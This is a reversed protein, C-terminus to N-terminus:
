KEFIAAATTVTANASSATSSGVSSSTSSPLAVFPETHTANALGPSSYNSSFRLDGDALDLGLLVRRFMELSAEPQYFPVEHGAQRVTLLFLLFPTLTSVEYVRLFSFNGYQRVEGYETGDVIFPAYGAAAFEEKHAYNVELSVAEGGFRNDCNALAFRASSFEYWNCIYDADGYYLAVRVSNNLLMELDELFNPFIFDGTQQFAYYVEDNADTYNLDVGLANQISAQNLYDAFYSPPTPDDSPHRIDYTGRGGYYYYPSEVNDRCMNEAETCIAFDSLSTLNTEACSAVQALCGGHM